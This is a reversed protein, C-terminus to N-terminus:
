IVYVYFILPIDAFVQNLLPLVQLDWSLNDRGCGLRTVSISNIHYKVIKARFDLLAARFDEFYPKSKSVAKTVLNFFIREGAKSCVCSGVVAPEEVVRIENGFHKRLDLAAGATMALDAGVCHGFTRNPPANVISENIYVFRLTPEISLIYKIRRQKQRKCSVKLEPDLLKEQLKGLEVRWSAITDNASPPIVINPLNNM